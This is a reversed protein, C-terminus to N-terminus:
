GKVQIAEGHSWLATGWTPKGFFTGPNWTSFLIFNRLAESDQGQIVRYDAVKGRDDIVLQVVVDGGYPVPNSRSLSPDTHIPSLVDTSYNLPTATIAPIWTGFLLLASIIGGAMPLAVPRMLNEAHIQFTSVWNQMRALLSVRAIHRIREQAAISRLNEKLKVPMAPRAMSRMAARLHVMSEYQASCERCSEIHALTNQREGASVKGDLLSSVLEQVNGCSM